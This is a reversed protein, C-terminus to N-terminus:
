DACGSSTAARPPMRPWRRTVTAPSRAHRIGAGRHDRVDDASGRARRARRDLRIPGFPMRDGACGPRGGASQGGPRAIGRHTRRLRAAQTRRRRPHDRRVKRRRAQAAAHQCQRAAARHGPASIARAAASRPAPEVHRRRQGAAAGGAVRLANSVLADRPDERTMIAALTFGEPMVMPVDKLSHVALDARGELM